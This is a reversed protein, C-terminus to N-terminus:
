TVYTLFLGFIDKIVDIKICKIFKKRQSLFEIHVIRKIGELSLEFISWPCLNAGNLIFQLLIQKTKKFNFICTIFCVNHLNLKFM